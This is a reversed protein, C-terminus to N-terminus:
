FENTNYLKRFGGLIFIISLCEEKQKFLKLQVISTTTKFQKQFTKIYKADALNLSLYM